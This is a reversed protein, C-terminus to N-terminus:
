GQGTYEPALNKAGAKEEEKSAQYDAELLKLRSERNDKETQLEDEYQKLPELTAERYMEFNNEWISNAQAFQMQQQQQFASFSKMQDTTFQSYAEISNLDMGKQNGFAFISAQMQARMNTQMARQEASLAKEMNGIEKTARRLQSQIRTLEVQESRISKGLALKKFAATLFSM